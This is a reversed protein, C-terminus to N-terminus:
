FKAASFTSYPGRGNNIAMSQMNEMMTQMHQFMQQQTSNAASMANAMQDDFNLPPSPTPIVEADLMKPEATVAMNEQLAAVVDRFMNAHHM